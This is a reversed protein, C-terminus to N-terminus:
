IHILTLDFIGNVSLAEDSGALEPLPSVVAKKWSAGGWIPLAGDFYEYSEAM